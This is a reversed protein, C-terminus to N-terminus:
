EESPVFPIPSPPPAAMWATQAAIWSASRLAPIGPTTESLWLEAWRTHRNIVFGSSLLARTSTTLVHLDFSDLLEVRRHLDDPIDQHVRGPERLQKRPDFTELHLVVPVPRRVHLHREAHAAQLQLEVEPLGFLARDLVRLEVGAALPDAGDDAHVGLEVERGVALPRAHFPDRVDVDGARDAAHALTDELRD